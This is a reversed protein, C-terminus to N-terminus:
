GIETETLIIQSIPVELEQKLQQIGTQYENIRELMKIDDVPSNGYGVVQYDSGAAKMMASQKECQSLREFYAKVVEHADFIKPPISTVLCCEVGFAWHVQVKSREYIYKADKSDLLEHSWDTLMAKGYRYCEIDSQHKFKREKIQNTDLITIFYYPSKSFARLNQVSNGGGDFILARTCRSKNPKKTKNLLYRYKEMSQLASKQLDANGSFTRFYIPHGYGDHIIVQEDGKMVRGLMTVKVSRCRKSSWLPKVNGDISDFALKHNTSDYQKWFSHFFKLWAIL